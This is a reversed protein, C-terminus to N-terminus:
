RNKNHFREFCQFTFLVLYRTDMYKGSYNPLRLLSLIMGLNRQFNLCIM